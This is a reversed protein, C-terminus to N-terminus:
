QPFLNKCYCIKVLVLTIDKVNIAMMFQSIFKFYTACSSTKTYEISCVLNESSVKKKSSNRTRVKSLSKEIIDSTYFKNNGISNQISSVNTKDYSSSKIAQNFTVNRWSLQCLIFLKFITMSTLLSLVWDSRM